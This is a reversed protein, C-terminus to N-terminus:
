SPPPEDNLTKQFEQWARRAQRATKGCKEALTALQKPGLVILGVVGLMLLEGFGINFM